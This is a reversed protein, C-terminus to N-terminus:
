TLAVSKLTGADNVWLRTSPITTNKWVTFQGDTLDDTTPNVDSTTMTLRDSASAVSTLITHLSKFFIFWHEAMAPEADGVPMTARSLIDPVPQIEDAM